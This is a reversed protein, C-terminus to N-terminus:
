KDGKTEQFTLLKNHIYTRAIENVREHSVKGKGGTGSLIASLTELSKQDAEQVKLAILAEISETAKTTVMWDLTERLTSDTNPTTM